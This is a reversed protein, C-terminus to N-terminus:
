PEQRRHIPKTTVTAARSKGRVDIELVSGPASREVPVYAMGIGIGLSPSHTGSTVIGGGTVPNGPRAVGPGDITFAVLIEPTGGARDRAVSEAGIFGTAERCCWSLGAEIPGREVTLENGYLHFCMETRLTDRAGLGAPEAGAALLADWVAAADSPDVLLEVGAEGTYGTGCVFARVGAVRCVGARMRAPPDGATVAALMRRADPGQLALMAYDDRRDAIEVDYGDAHARLWAVDREHNTANTVTLFRDPALRYSFLDDLIGGDENCLLSYQAGGQGLAAVDNTLLRQLFAEADRGATEVQGMHSVDFLGARRRVAHHEDQIGQYQVPLAWGAFPVLRGGAGVHRDHLPSRRLAATSEDM